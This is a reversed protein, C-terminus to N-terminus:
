QPPPEPPNGACALAGTAAPIACALAWLHPREEAGQGRPFRRAHEEVAALATWPDNAHVAALAQELLALPGRQRRRLAPPLGGGERRPAARSAREVASPPGGPSALELAAFHIPPTTAPPENRVLMPIPAALPQPAPVPAGASPDRLLWGVLLGVALAGGLMGLVPAAGMSPAPAVIHISVPSAGLGNTPTPAPMCDEVSARIWEPMAESGHKGTRLVKFFEALGIAPMFSRSTTPAVDRCAAEMQHVAVRYRYQAQPITLGRARAVEDWSLGEVHVDLLVGREVEELLNLRDMLERREANQEPNALGSPSDEVPTLHLRRGPARHYHGAVRAAIAVLWARPSDITCCDRLLLKYATWFVEQTLDPREDKPVCREGLANFVAHTHQKIWAGVTAEAERPTM